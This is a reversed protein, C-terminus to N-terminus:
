RTLTCKSVPIRKVRQRATIADGRVVCAKAESDGDQSRGIVLLKEERERKRKWQSTIRRDANATEIGARVLACATYPLMLPMM